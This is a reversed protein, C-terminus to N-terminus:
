HINNKRLKMSKLTAYVDNWVCIEVTGYRSSYNINNNEGNIKMTITKEM